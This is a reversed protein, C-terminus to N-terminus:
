LFPTDLELGLISRGHVELNTELNLLAHQSFGEIDRFFRQIPLSKQLVSAGSARYLIETAEKALTVAYAAQGRLQARFGESTEQGADAAAQLTEILNNNLTDAAQIKNAAEAVQIQTLPHLKQDEWNTYTIPRGSVRGLFLELAGQAIGICVAVCEVFILPFLGYRRDARLHDRGATTDLIAEEFTVVRHGPVFVNTATSSVSGTGAAAFTKWDDATTLDSMPVIAIAESETGDENEIISACLDWAAGLCGSNFRWTGNLLYGDDQPRLTGSPTFGGSIRPSPGDAFIEDQTIDPFYTALTVNSVWVMTLWGTSGCGHAVQKILDSQERLSLESGGYRRPAAAQIVGSQDLLAVNDDGIWRNDETSQGRELLTPTIKDIEKSIDTFTLTM